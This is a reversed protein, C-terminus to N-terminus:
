DRTQLHGLVSLYAQHVLLGDLHVQDSQLFSSVRIELLETHPVALDQMWPPIAGPVLVCQPNSPNGAPDRYFFGPSDQHASLQVHTLLTCREALLALWKRFQM